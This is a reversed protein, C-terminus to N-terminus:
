RVSIRGINKQLYLSDFYTCNLGIATWSVMQGVDMQFKCAAKFYIIRLTPMFKKQLVKQM